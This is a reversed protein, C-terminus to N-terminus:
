DTLCVQSMLLLLDNKQPLYMKYKSAFIQNNDKPLTYKVVSEKKSKCLVIGLTNNEQKDKINGDFYNVYMQMQGIDKHQLEGLKLDILVFCRLIRHYFVLDIYYHDEELTIRYQRGVFLFGKGLEKLFQELKNILETELDYETYASDEKLDLFELILPDKIADKAIEVIHGKTSLEKVKKKNRSLALREYLASDYQRKLERVHWNENSTEIEYFKREAENEIRMLVNYHLWSLKFNFKRSLTESKKIKNKAPTLKWSPTESNKYIAYVRRMNGLNDVSFGKGFERALKISLGNLTKTAYAARSSGSQEFEIIHKGILFYTEVMKANVSSVIDQRAEHILAEINKYLLQSSM